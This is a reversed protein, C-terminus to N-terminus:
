DGSSFGCVLITGPHCRLSSLLRLLAAVDYALGSEATVRVTSRNGNRWECIYVRCNKGFDDYDHKISVANM